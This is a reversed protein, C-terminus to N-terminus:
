GSVTRTISAAHAAHRAESATDRRYPGHLRRDVEAGDVMAKEIELQAGGDPGREFLLQSRLDAGPDLATADDDPDMDRARGGGGTRQPDVFGGRVVGM